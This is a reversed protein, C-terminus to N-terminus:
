MFYHLSVIKAANIYQKQCMNVHALNIWVEAINSTSERARLIVDKAADIYGKEGMVAGIALAAYVNDPDSRLVKEFFNLAYKLYREQKQKMDPRIFSFFIYGMALNTYTDNKDINQIIHEFKKQANSWEERKLYFSGM